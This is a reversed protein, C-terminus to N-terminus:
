LVGGIQFKHALLARMEPDTLVREIECATKYQAMVQADIAETDLNVRRLPDLTALTAQGYHHLAALLIDIPQKSM